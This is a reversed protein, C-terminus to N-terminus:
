RSLRYGTQDKELMSRLSEYNQAAIDELTPLSSSEQTKKLNSERSSSFDIDDVKESKSPDVDFVKCFLQMRHYDDVAMFKRYEKETIAHTVMQGDVIATMVWRGQLDKVVSQPVQENQRVESIRELIDAANDVRINSVQLAHGQEHQRAIIESGVINSKLVDALGALSPKFDKDAIFFRGDGADIRVLGFSDLLWGFLEQLFYNTGM